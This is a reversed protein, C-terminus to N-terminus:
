AQPTEATPATVETGEQVFATSRASNVRGRSSLSQALPLSGELPGGAITTGYFNGNSAQVLGGPYEGDACNALACFSYLTTLTGAPTIEFVTGTNSRNAGGDETLGYFNGDTGLLLGTNPLAGNRCLNRTCVFSYLTTLVGAPTVEFIEGWSNAGGFQTTGYFNGNTGQVLWSPAEGDTFDFGALSTFTQAASPLTAAVCFAVVICAIRTSSLRIM